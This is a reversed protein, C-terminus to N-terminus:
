DPRTLVAPNARANVRAMLGSPAHPVGDSIASKDLFDFPSPNFRSTREKPTALSIAVARPQNAFGSRETDEEGWPGVGARELYTRYLAPSEFNVVLSFDEARTGGYRHGFAVLVRPGIESPVALSMSAASSREVKFTAETPRLGEQPLPPAHPLRPPPPEPIPRLSLPSSASSSLALFDQIIAERKSLSLGCHFIQVQGSAVGVAAPECPAREAEVEEDVRTEVCPSRAEVEMTAFKELLQSQLWTASTSTNCYVLVRCYAKLEKLLSWLTDFRWQKTLSFDDGVVRDALDETPMVIKYQEVGELSFERPRQCVWLVSDQNDQDIGLCKLQPKQYGYASTFVWVRVTAQPLPAQEASLSTATASTLDSQIRSIHGYLKRICEEFGRDIAENFEDFALVRLRHGLRLIRRDLM